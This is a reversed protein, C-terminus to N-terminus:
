YGRRGGKFWLLVMVVGNPNWGKRDCWWRAVTGEIVHWVRVCLRIKLFIDPGSHFGSLRIKLIIDPDSHNEITWSLNWKLVLFVVIGLWIGWVYVKLSVWCMSLMGCEREKRSTLKQKQKKREFSNLEFQCGTLIEKILKIM